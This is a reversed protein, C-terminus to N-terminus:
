DPTFRAGPAAEVVLDAAPSLTMAESLLDAHPQGLARRALAITALVSARADPGHDEALGPACLPEVEGFRGQRLRALALTHEVAARPMSTGEAEFPYNDLIWRVRNAAEDIEAHPLGPVLLLSCEIEHLSQAQERAYRGAPV